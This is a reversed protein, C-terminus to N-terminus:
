SVEVVGYPFKALHWLAKKNAARAAMKDAPRVYLDRGIPGRKMNVGKIDEVGITFRLIVPISLM